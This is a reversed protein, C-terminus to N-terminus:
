KELMLKLHEVQATTRLWRQCFDDNESCTEVLTSHFERLRQVGHGIFDGLWVYHSIWEQVSKLTEQVAQHISAHPQRIKQM